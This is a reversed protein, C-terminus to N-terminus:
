RIQERLAPAATPSFFFFLAKKKNVPPGRTQDKKQSQSDTDPFNFLFYIEEKKVLLETTGKLLAASRILTKQLPEAHIHVPLIHFM